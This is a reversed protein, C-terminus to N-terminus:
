KWMCNKMMAVVFVKFLYGYVDGSRRYFGKAIGDDM